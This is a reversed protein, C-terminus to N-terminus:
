SVEGKLSGDFKRARCSTYRSGPKAARTSRCLKPTWTFGWSAVKRVNGSPYTNGAAPPVAREADM